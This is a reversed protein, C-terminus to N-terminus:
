GHCHVSSPSFAATAPLSKTKIGETDIVNHTQNRSETKQCSSLDKQLLALCLTDLGFQVYSSFNTHNNSDTNSWVIQVKRVYTKLPRKFGTFKFDPMIDEKGELKKRYWDPLAMPRKTVKDVTVMKVILSIVPELSHQTFMQLRTQLSTSGMGGFSTKIHLPWKAMM